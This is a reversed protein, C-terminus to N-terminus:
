IKKKCANYSMSIPNLTYNLLKSPSVISIIFIILLSLLVLFYFHSAVIGKNLLMNVVQRTFNQYIYILLTYKGWFAFLRTPRAIKMFAACTIIALFTFLARHWFTFSGYPFSFYAAPKFNTLYIMAFIFVLIITSLIISSKNIMKKIIGYESYYGLLFFPLYSCTRQFSFYERVPIYGALFSVIFSSAIIIYKFNGKRKLYNHAILVFLRYYILTMLYWYNPRVLLKIISFEGKIIDDIYFIFQFILYTECIKLLGKIYRKKEKIQSFLGSVYIFLPMHFSYIFHYTTRVFPDSNYRIGIEFVHGIIVLSVLLYKLSDWYPDRKSIIDKIGTNNNM